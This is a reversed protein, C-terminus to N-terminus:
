ILQEKKNDLQSHILYQIQNNLDGMFEPVISRLKRNDLSTDKPRITLDNRDILLSPIILNQDLKFADCLKLGFDYKSIREDGVVNYIGCAEKDMLAHSAQILYEMIIPSFYADKFLAITQGSRLANIIRDSFSHKYSKTWGFFNTRIILANPNVEGVIVEAQAKTKGYINIPNMLAEESLMPMVGKFLHDTSIHILKSGLQACALAVEKAAAVNLKYAKIPDIECEEVSSMAATHVVLDPKVEKITSLVTEKELLNLKIVKVGVLNIENRNSTVTVEYRKSLTDAWRYGLLGSGGTILIKPKL